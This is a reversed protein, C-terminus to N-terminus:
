TDQAAIKEEDLKRLRQAASGRWKYGEAKMLETVREEWERTSRMDSEYERKFTWYAQDVSKDMSLAYLHVVAALTLGSTVGLGVAKMSGIVGLPFTFVGGVLASFAPLYWSSFRQRYAAVHTSLIVISGSILAAKMGMSFGSKAFRVIAYDMRRKFADSPSLYKRGVNSREFTEHAQAYTSAGGFLFGTLFTMRAIRVSCDREMSPQEYLARVRDWGSLSTSATSARQDASVVVQSSSSPVQNDATATSGREPAASLQEPEQASVSKVDSGSIWYSLNWWSLVPQQVAPGNSM